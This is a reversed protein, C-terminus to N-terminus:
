GRGIGEIYLRKGVGAGGRNQPLCFFGAGQRDSQNKHQRCSLMSYLHAVAGRYGLILRFIASFLFGARQGAKGTYLIACGFGRYYYTKPIFVYLKEKGAKHM